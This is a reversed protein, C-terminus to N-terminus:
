ALPSMASMRRFIKKQSWYFLNPVDQPHTFPLIKM